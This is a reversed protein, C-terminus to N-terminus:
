KVTLTAPESEVSGASNTVICRYQYGSRYSKAEVSLTAGSGNSCNTWLGTASIRYQWRYSLGSGSAKVTFTATEGRAATVSQPQASITPASLVTLTAPESEVTGASNKVICRYQYGNRYKEATVKFAASKATSATSNAWAGTSGTRYQWQYSLGAGSAKVTFTATEGRAATVSQPQATITPASAVTLTAPESEVTGLSNKVVCRYQYGSRYSKAEVSLTAAAGNSCNTWLGTASIRYQWQYSLDSGGAKVTFTATEGLAATVSQPQATISPASLVSLTAPESEVTGLSNKVVCRYQYGNRYSKAEVSLSATKASALGSNAWSGSSGSRYQWQYSLDGGSAKVTFVATEGPAATVSQPQASINPASLVSLTAPETYVSGAPSSVECRYQYGSRYSKAEVSLSPAAGNSCNTWLGTPSIRYQWRYSLRLGEAAVSFCVTEGLQATVSQPQRAIVPLPFPVEYVASVTQGAIDYDLLDSDYAELVKVSLPYEAPLLGEPVNLVLTLIPEGAPLRFGQVVDMTFNLKEENLILHGEFAPYPSCSAYTFGEPVTFVLHIGGCNVLDEDAVVRLTVLGESKELELRVGGEARAAPLLSLCLFLCLALSLLRKM